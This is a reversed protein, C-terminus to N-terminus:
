KKLYNVILKDLSESIEKIEQSGMNGKIKKYLLERVMEIKMDLDMGEDLQVRMIDRRTIIIKFKYKNNLILLNKNMEISKIM